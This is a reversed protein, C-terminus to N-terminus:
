RGRGERIMRMRGSSEERTQLSRLSEREDCGRSGKRLGAPSAAGIPVPTLDPPVRVRILDVASGQGTNCCVVVVRPQEVFVADDMGYSVWGAGLETDRQLVRASAYMQVLGLKNKRFALRNKEHRNSELVTASRTASM